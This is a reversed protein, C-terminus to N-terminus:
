ITMDAYCAGLFYIVTFGIVSMIYTKYRVRLYLLVFM